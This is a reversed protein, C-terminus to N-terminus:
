QYLRPVRSSIMLPIEYNITGLYRAVEDVTIEEDGDRGILTVKTGIEFPEDLRVMMQDMCIRGIIRHRKGNILVNFNQLKRLWGDGYGIPITGVWHDEPAEYSGGYSVLDGKSIKKVHILESFLSFVPKLKISSENKVAESPYLGYMSIGFRIADFMENPFRMSAASNGIHIEQPTPLITEINKLMVKFQNLQYKYYSPDADDATAFHTYIGTVRIPSNMCDSIVDYAEQENRIGIRGMGSDIKIHVNLNAGNLEKIAETIWQKQFVTLTINHKAAIIAYKPNTWGLVLIPVDPHADRLKLAEDLIAVAFANAGAELAAKAVQLDGHGYANAKVVAYLKKEYNYFKLIEKINHKLNTLNVEAWTNRYRISEM